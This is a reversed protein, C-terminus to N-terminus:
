HRPIGVKKLTEGVSSGPQGPVVKTWITEDVVEAASLTTWNPSQGAKLWKFDDVQDWQNEREADEELAYCQPLPAFRMGTCDEIIPHSTCHLYIDVNKCEHIRVQRATVVLISDTVGTIHVPGDVRGAIILSHSVDRLALGPFPRGEATPVSMDVICRNLETLSGSATARAASSPLIIHLDAQKSIGISSAASFSPQRIFHTSPKALEANYDRGNNRPLESVQDRSETTDQQLQEDDRHNLANRSLSGPHLRPDNEPAGMDVHRQISSRRFQFRSKPTVKAITENLKEQLGKIADSYQKRDYAPTFDAADAVEHQLKSISALVHDIAEQREGAVSAVSQLQDILDQLEAVHDQFFRYFKQSPDM